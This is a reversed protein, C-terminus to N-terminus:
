SGVKLLKVLCYMKQILNMEDLALVSLCANNQCVNFFVACVYRNDFRLPNVKVSAIKRLQLKYADERFHKHGLSWAIQLFLKNKLLFFISEFMFFSFQLEEVEINLAFTETETCM